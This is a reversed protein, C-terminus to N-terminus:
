FDGDKGKRWEVGELLRPPLMRCNVGIRPVPVELGKKAAEERKYELGKETLAWHTMCGCHECFYFGISGDGDPDERVYGRLGSGEEEGQTPSASVKSKITGEPGPAATPNNVFVNVDARPFYAWIAGYRHCASCKCENVRLPPSPMEVSIRGCHCTTTLTDPKAQAPEPPPLEDGSRIALHPHYGRENDQAMKLAPIRGCSNGPRHQRESKERAKKEHRSLIRNTKCYSLVRFSSRLLKTSLCDLFQGPACAIDSTGLYM